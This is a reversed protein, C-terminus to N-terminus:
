SEKLQGITILTRAKLEKKEMESLPPINFGKRSMINDIMAKIDRKNAM